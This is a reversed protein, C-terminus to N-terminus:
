YDNSKVRIEETIAPKNTITVTMNESLRVCLYIRYMCPTEFFYRGLVKPINESRNIKLRKQTFNQLSFFLAM